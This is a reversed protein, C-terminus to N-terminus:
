LYLCRYVVQGPKTTIYRMIIDTPTKSKAEQMKDNEVTRINIKGVTAEAMQLEAVGNSQMQVDM